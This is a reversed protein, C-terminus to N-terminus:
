WRARAGRVDIHIFPGRARNARYLGAGGLLEPHRREVREVARLMLRADELDRRGDGNLDSMYGDDENDVWVDAADGFQHRSLSSAPNGLHRHNYQPTRFGSMVAMRDARVGMLRLELLVLELKDLLRPDLVLYKPWVGGQDKTLFQALTFHESVRLDRNAETVEIFGAPPAYADTRGTGETPWTGLHYGGIYGRRKREFPVTVIIRFAEGLHHVAPGDHLELEYVGAMRPARLSTGGELAGGGGDGPTGLVPRWRYRADLPTGGIWEVPLHVASGPPLIRTRLNRSLGVANDALAVSRVPVPGAPTAADPGASPRVAPEAPAAHDTAPMDLRPAAGPAAFVALAVLGLGLSHPRPRPM